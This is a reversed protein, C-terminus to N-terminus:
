VLVGQSNKSETTSSASSIQTLSQSTDSDLSMDSRGHTIEILEGPSKPLLGNCAEELTDQRPDGEGFHRANFLIAPMLFSIRFLRRASRKQAITYHPLCLVMIGHKM